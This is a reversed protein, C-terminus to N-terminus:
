FLGLITGIQLWQLNPLNNNEFRVLNTDRIWLKKLGTISNISVFETFNPMNDIILEQLVAAQLTFNASTLISLNALTLNTLKPMKLIVTSLLPLDKVQIVPAYNNAANLPM